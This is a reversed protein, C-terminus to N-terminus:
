LLVVRLKKTVERMLMPLTGMGPLASLDQWGSDALHRFPMPPAVTGNKKRSAGPPPVLSAVVVPNLTAVVAGVAASRLYSGCWRGRGEM